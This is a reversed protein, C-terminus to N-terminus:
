LTGFALFCIFGRPRLNTSEDTEFNKSDMIFSLAWTKLM